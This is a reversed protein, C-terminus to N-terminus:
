IIVFLLEIGMLGILFETAGEPLGICRGRNHTDVILFILINICIHHASDNECLIIFYRVLPLPNTTAVAEKAQVKAPSDM